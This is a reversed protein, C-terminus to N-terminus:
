VSIQYALNTDLKLIIILERIMGSSLPHRRTIDLILDGSLACDERV